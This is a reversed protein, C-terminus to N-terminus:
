APRRVALSEAPYRGSIGRIGYGVFQGGDSIGVDDNRAAGNGPADQLVDAARHWLQRGARQYRDQRRPRLNRVLIYKEMRHLQRSSFRSEEGGDEVAPLWQRRSAYGLFLDDRFWRSRCFGWSVLAGFRGSAARSRDVRRRGVQGSRVAM